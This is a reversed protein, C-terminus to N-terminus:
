LLVALPPLSPPVSLASVSFIPPKSDDEGEREKEAARRMGVPEFEVSENSLSLPLPTQGYEM